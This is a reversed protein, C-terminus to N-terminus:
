KGNNGDGKLGNMTTAILDITDLLEPEISGGVDIRQLENLIFEMQTKLAKYVRPSPQVVVEREMCKRYCYEQKPLGSLAIARNLEKQEEPSVRFAVTISRFRNYKDVNKASIIDCEKILLIM